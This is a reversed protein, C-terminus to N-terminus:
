REPHHRVASSRRCGRVLAGQLELRFQVGRRQSIEARAPGDPTGQFSVSVRAALPRGQARGRAGARQQHLLRHAASRQGAARGRACAENFKAELGPAFPDWVVGLDGLRPAPVPVFSVYPFKKRGVVTPLANFAGASNFGWARLRDIWRGFHDDLDYPRGYKRITNALYFSVVGSDGQNRASQFAGDSGPLWEYISERGRVTTYDDCPSIGCVGLQFFANGEPTVLVDASGGGPRAIRGLHFFGTRTLGYAQGSGPLGGHPDTAPPRLAALWTREWEADNRLEAEAQVKTAFRAKVWQGFRDVLPSPKGTMGTSALTISFEPSSNGQPLPCSFWWHYVSWNWERNDQLQQFSDPPIAISFGPGTPHVFAISRASGQYLFPRAPKEVPFTQAVAGRARYTGSGGFGIPILMEMRFQRADTPPNLFGIRLTTGELRVLAQGGEAYM